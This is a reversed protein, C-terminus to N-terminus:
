PPSAVSLLARLVYGGDTLAVWRVRRGNARGDVEHGVLTAGQELEALRHARADPRARIPAHPTIVTYTLPRPMDPM